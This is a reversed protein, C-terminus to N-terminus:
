ESVRNIRCEYDRAREGKSERRGREEETWGGVCVCVCVCMSKGKREEKKFIFFYFIGERQWANKKGLAVGM